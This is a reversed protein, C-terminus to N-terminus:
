ERPEPDLCADISDKSEMTHVDICSQIREDLLDPHPDTLVAIAIFFLMLTLTVAAWLGIAITNHRM